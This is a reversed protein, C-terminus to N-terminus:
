ASRLLQGHAEGAAVVEKRLARYRPFVSTVVLRTQRDWKWVGVVHGNAIIAPRAEGIRNYLRNYNAEDVYRLRTEFYAKLIPDEHGLFTYRREMELDAAPERQTEAGHIPMGFLPAKTWPAMFRFYRDERAELHRLVVGRSLGSWWAADHVSAPGYRRFYHGLLREQADEADLAAFEHRLEADTGIVRREADWASPSRWVFLDGAEWGLKLIQAGLRPDGLRSRRALEGALERPPRPGSDGVIKVALNVAATYRRVSLGHVVLPRIADRVRYRRTATHAVSALGRPLIHLTKRMCRVRILQSNPAFDLVSLARSFDNTRAAVIPVPSVVRAAHVGVLQEAIVAPTASKLDVLQDCIQEAFSRAPPMLEAATSAM